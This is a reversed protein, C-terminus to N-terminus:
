RSLVPDLWLGWDDRIGDGADSTELVLENVGTLDVDFDKCLQDKLTGSNWLERGDGLIRFGVTGTHGSAVGASGRLRKWAGGLEYEHRAPAHAYLGGAFIRGGAVFLDPESALLDVASGGWGTRASKWALSSLPATAPADAPATRASGFGALRGVIQKVMADAALDAPLSDLAPLPQKMRAARVFPALALKMRSARLDVKGGADVQYPFRLIAGGSGFSSSAGNVHSAVLYFESRANKKLNRCHLTFRGDPGPVASSPVANYDSNGEPDMYGTVAHVPPSGVVRGSVTFGDETTEVALDSLTQRARSTMGKVSGCFMPHAALRLGHPLTLFSGKGEGRLNEGYTRNGSGMLATGFLEREPPSECNHPLGLAHGLEHAIGGIFISNYRGVSIHGYQGDRVKPEHKALLDLDLIPSDVQWATGRQHDGGAYYPSNQSITKKDADWNSMNCFIMITERDIDIGADKLVPLCENRIDGGSQVHYRAYPHTGKVLHIRLMGDDMEDLQISRPGFGLRKMEGAYFSRIDKLIASLRERYRPNPERDAPTWYILHLLRKGRVPSEQQWPGIIEMARPVQGAIDEAPGAHSWSSLSLCVLSSVSLLRVFM